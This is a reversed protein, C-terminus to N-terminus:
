KKRRGKKRNWKSKVRNVDIKKSEKRKPLVEKPAMEIPKEGRNAAAMVDLSIDPMVLQEETLTPHTPFIPERIGPLFPVPTSRKFLDPVVLLSQLTYVPVEFEIKTMKSEDFKEGEKKEVAITSRRKKGTRFHSTNAGILHVGEGPVFGGLAKAKQRQEMIEAFEKLFTGQDKSKTHMPPLGVAQRVTDNRMANSQLLTFVMSTALYLQVGSPQQAMFCPMFIALTQFADKIFKVVNSRSSTEGSLAKKGVATEVNLYLLAGTAIPLAYWPDPETLDTIWFFSSEVLQQALHPDSGEIIKRIDVAFYWFVPIQLAPSKITCSAM